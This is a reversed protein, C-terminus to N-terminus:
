IEKGQCKCFCYLKNLKERMQRPKKKIGDHIICCRLINRFFFEVSMLIANKIRNINVKVCCVFSIFNINDVKTYFVFCILDCLFNVAIEIM